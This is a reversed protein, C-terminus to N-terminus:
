FGLLDVLGSDVMWGFFMVGCLVAVYYWKMQRGNWRNRVDAQKQTPERDKYVSRVSMDEPPLISPWSGGAEMMVEMESSRYEGADGALMEWRKVAIMPMLIFAPTIARGFAFAVHCRRRLEKAVDAGLLDGFEVELREGWVTVAARMMGPQEVLVWDDIKLNRRQLTEDAIDSGFLKTIECHIGRVGIERTNRLHPDHCPSTGRGLALLNDVGFAERLSANYPNSRTLVTDEDMDISYVKDKLKHFLEGGLAYNDFVFDEPSLEIVQHSDLGAVEFATEIMSEAQDRKHLVKEHVWAIGLQLRIMVLGLAHRLMANKTDRMVLWLSTALSESLGMRRIAPGFEEGSYRTAIELLGSWSQRGGAWATVQAIDAVLCQFRELDEPSLKGM